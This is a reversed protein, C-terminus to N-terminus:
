NPSVYHGQFYITEGDRIVYAFPHDANFVMQSSPRPKSYRVTLLATAAAAEAGEENVEIFAKHIVKSVYVKSDEVLDSFDALKKFADQIGMAKLVRNLQTSFEIKFKPLRLTVDMKSLKPTFGVIKKELEPLGDVKDPLFILMSLSSNRYPLEIIKAGLERDHAASFLEIQSMMEVPVSKQDSVHFIMKKTLKPNFKYEWQGKFFIANLVVVVMDSLANASVLDRIKGRTQNDVWNNIISAARNPDVVSITEAEAKFSDKVMQNYKPVLKFKDNVYIRNALSLTAVKERGEIKSLLDKYKAAVEKKDDPLKLVNRMEEATKERAGMYAMSLAIEVSLPSSILNNAVNEKALIQYFDDTFRCSVSTALLLLCLYKM